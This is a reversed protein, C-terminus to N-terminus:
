ESLFKLLYKSKTKSLKSIEQMLEDDQAEVSLIPSGRGTIIWDINPRAGSPTKLKALMALRETDPFAVGNWVKRLVTSNVYGLQVSLENLRLNLYDEALSKLRACMAKRLAADKRTRSM